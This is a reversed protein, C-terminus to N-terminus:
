ATRERRRRRREVLWAIAVALEYFLVMPGAVLLQTGADVTPTIFAAATFMGVIAFPRAKRLNQTDLVGALVLAVLVLPLEFVLGFALAMRLFFTLYADANVMAEIGPGGLGLLVTLGLPIILYAFLIGITFMVQSLVVFPLAYRRETPTLGPTIFRWLQYFIVPGGLYLGVLLSTRIRVSFPELPTLAILACREDPAITALATCYPATLVELVWPFLLWGGVAGLGLALLARLLRSRLERLHETFTM